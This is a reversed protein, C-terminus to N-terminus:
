RECVLQWCWNLMLAAVLLGCSLDMARNSRRPPSWGALAVTRYPIQAIVALAVLWGLRHHQWSEMWRGHALDILSRTLGCGACSVGFLSRSLCVEPAPWNSMGLPYVRQDQRVELVFSSVCVVLAIVLITAHPSQSVDSQSIPRGSWWRSAHWM